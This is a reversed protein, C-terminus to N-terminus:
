THPSAASVTFRVMLLTTLGTGELRALANRCRLCAKSSLCADCDQTQASATHVYEYRDLILQRLFKRHKNRHRLSGIFISIKKRIVSFTKDSLWDSQGSEM